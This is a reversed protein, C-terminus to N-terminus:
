TTFVSDSLIHNAGPILDGDLSNMDELYTNLTSLISEIFHTGNKQMFPGLAVAAGPLVSVIGNLVMLNLNITNLMEYVKKEKKNKGKLYETLKNGLVMPHLEQNGVQLEIVQGKLREGKCNTEGISADFGAFNGRGAYIRVKERGIIRLQDAKMAVASKGIDTAGGSPKLGFYRDVDCKQSIYIRAADSHFMPGVKEIGELPPNNNKKNHEMILQGRGAVLDIMGCQLKGKGGNGSTWTSNRDRGLIIFANHNGQFKVECPAKNFEPTKEEVNACFFSTVGNKVQQQTYEDTMNSLNFLKKTFNINSM